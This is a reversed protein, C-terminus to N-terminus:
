KQLNLPKFDIVIRNNNITLSNIVSSVRNTSLIRILEKSGENVNDSVSKLNVKNSQSELVISRAVSLLLGYWLGNNLRISTFGSGITDNKKGTSFYKLSQGELISEDEQFRSLIAIGKNYNRVLYKHYCTDKKQVDEQSFFAELRSLRSDIYSDSGTFKGYVNVDAKLLLRKKSRKNKSRSWSVLVVAEKDPLVTDEIIRFDNSDQYMETTINYYERYLSNNNQNKHGSVFFDTIGTIQASSMLAILAKARFVALSIATDKEMGPDSVGICYLVSDNSEPINIAWQPIKIRQFVLKRDPTTSGTYDDDFEKDFVNKFKEYSFDIDNEKQALIYNSLLVLLSAIAFRQIFSYTIRNKM